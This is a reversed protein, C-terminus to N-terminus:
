ARPLLLEAAHALAGDFIATARITAAPLPSRSPALRGFARTGSCPLGIICHLM